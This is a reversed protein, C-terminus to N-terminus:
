FLIKNSEIEIEMDNQQRIEEADTVPQMDGLNEGAVLRPRAHVQYVFKNLWYVFEPETKIGDIEYHINNFDTRIMDGEQLERRWREAKSIEDEPLELQEQTFINFDILSQKIQTKVMNRSLYLVIPEESVRDFKGYIKNEPSVDWIAKTTFYAGYSKNTDEGFVYIPSYQTVLYITVPFGALCIYEDISSELWQTDCDNPLIPSSLCKCVENNITSTGSQTGFVSQFYSNYDYNQDGFM